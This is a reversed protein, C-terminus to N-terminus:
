RALERLWPMRAISAMWQASVPLGQSGGIVAQGMVRVRGHISVNITIHSFQKRKNRFPSYENVIQIPRSNEKRKHDLDQNFRYAVSAQSPSTM